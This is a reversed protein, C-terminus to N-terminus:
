EGKHHLRGMSIRWAMEVALRPEAVVLEQERGNSSLPSAAGVRICWAMEIKLRPEVVLLEQERELYMAHENTTINM